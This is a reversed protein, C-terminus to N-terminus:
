DKVSIGGARAEQIGEEEFVHKFSDSKLIKSHTNIFQGKLCRDVKFAQKSVSPNPNIWTQHMDRLVVRQM